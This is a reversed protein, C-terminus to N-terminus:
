SWSARNSKFVHGMRELVGFFVDLVTWCMVVAHGRACFVDFGLCYDNKNDICALM